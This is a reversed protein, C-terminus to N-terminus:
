QKGIPTTTIARLIIGIVGVVALVAGNLDDAFSDPFTLGAMEALGVLLLIGNYVLTKYGKMM